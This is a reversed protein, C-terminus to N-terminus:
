GGGASGTPIQMGGSSSNGTPNNVFHIPIVFQMNYEKEKGGIERKIGLSVEVADPYKDKTAGDMGNKSYWQSSWETKGAGIYRLKFESVNELMPMETGGAEPDDDLIPQTRRYLCKGSKAGEALGKCDKLFYGVEIFDAQRHSTSIKGNNSTVFNMKEETGLFHTSPDIAPAEVAASPATPAAVGGGAPPAANLKKYADLIEKHFDRYHFAMYLDNRIMRMSDRLASVDDVEAQIKTKAKLARSIAQTVLVTLTSLITVALIVEILTFGNQSWNESRKKMLM